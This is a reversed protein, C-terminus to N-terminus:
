GEAGGGRAMCKLVEDGNLRRQKMLAAAVAKIAPWEAEVFVGAALYGANMFEGIGAKSQCKQFLGDYRVRRGELAQPSCPGLTLLYARCLRPDLVEYAEAMAAERDGMLGRDKDLLADFCDPEACVGKLRTEAHYGAYAVIIRCKAYLRAADLGVFGPLQQCAYPNFTDGFCVHGNTPLGRVVKTTVEVSEVAIGHILAAVAHGAEHYAVNTLKGSIGESRSSKLKGRAQTPLSM